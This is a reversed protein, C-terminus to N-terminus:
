KNAIEPFQAQIGATADIEQVIVAQEGVVVAANGETLKKPMDKPSPGRKKKPSKKPRQSDEPALVFVRAFSRDTYIRFNDHTNSRVIWDGIRARTYEVAAPDKVDVKIYKRTLQGEKDGEMIKGGCWETVEEMNTLTVQVAVVPFPRRHYTKTELM